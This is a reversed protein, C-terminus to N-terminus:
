VTAHAPGLPGSAGNIEGSCTYHQIQCRMVSYHLSSLLPNRILEISLIINVKAKWIFDLMFWHMWVEECVTVYLLVILGNESM